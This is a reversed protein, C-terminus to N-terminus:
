MWTLLGRVEGPKRLVEEGEEGVKEEEEEEKKEEEEKRYCLGTLAAWICTPIPWRLPVPLRGATLGKPFIPGGNRAAM